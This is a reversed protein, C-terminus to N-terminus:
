SPSLSLCVCLIADPKGEIEGFLVSEKTFIFHSTVRIKIGPAEPLTIM